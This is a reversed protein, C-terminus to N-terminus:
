LAGLILGMLATVVVAGGVVLGCCLFFPVLVAVAPKWPECRHFATLAIIQYIAVALPVALTGVFPLAALLGLTGQVYAIIKLSEVYGARTGELLHLIGHVIATGLLLVVVAGVVGGFFVGLVEGIGSRLSETFVYLLDEASQASLLSSAIHLVMRLFAGVLNAATTIVVMFVVAAIPERGVEMDRFTGGPAFAVQKLTALVAQLDTWSRKGEWAPSSIPSAPDVATM